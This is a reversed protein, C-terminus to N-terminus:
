CRTRACRDHYGSSGWASDLRQSCTSRPCADERSPRSLSHCASVAVPRAVPAPPGPDPQTRAQLTCIPSQLRLRRLRDSESSLNSVLSGLRKSHPHAIRHSKGPTTCFRPAKSQAKTSPAHNPNPDQATRCPSTTEGVCVRPTFGYLGARTASGVATSPQGPMGSCLIM